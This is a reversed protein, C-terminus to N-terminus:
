PRTVTVVYPQATGDSGAIVYCISSSFDNETVGSIQEVSGVWVKDGSFTFTAVFEGLETDKPVTVAITHDTQNITGTVPPDILGFTKFENKKDSSGGGCGSLTVALLLITVLFYAFSKKMKSVRRKLYYIISMSELKIKSGAV